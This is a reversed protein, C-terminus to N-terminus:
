AQAERAEMVRRVARKLAAGRVRSMAMPISSPLADVNVGANALRNEANRDKRAETTSM